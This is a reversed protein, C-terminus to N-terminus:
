SMCLPNRIPRNSARVLKNLSLLSMDVFSVFVCFHTVSNFGVSCFGMVTLLLFRDMEIARICDHTGTTMTWADYISVINPHRLNKLFGIEASIFDDDSEKM